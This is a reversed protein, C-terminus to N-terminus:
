QEEWEIEELVKKLRKNENFIRVLEKEEQTPQFCTATPYHIQLGVLRDGEWIRILSSERM